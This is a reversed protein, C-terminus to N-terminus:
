DVRLSDSGLAVSDQPTRFFEDDFIKIDVWRRMLSDIAVKENPIYEISFDYVKLKPAVKRRRKEGKKIPEDHRIRLDIVLEEHTSDTVFSRRVYDKDRLNYTYNSRRIDNASQLYMTGQLPRKGEKEENEYRFKVTYNGPYIPKIRIHLKQTDSLKTAEILSDRRITRRYTRIAVDRITDLIVVARDLERTKELLLKEAQQLVTGLQASKRRSFSGITYTFDEVTYGYRQLIPEYIKMSDLDKPFNNLYANTLYVDHFIDALEDDPISKQPACGVTATILMAWM